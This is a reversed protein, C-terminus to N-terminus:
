EYVKVINSYDSFYKEILTFVKSKELGGYGCGLAPFSVSPTGLHILADKALPLNTELYEYQSSNKWHIKTPFMLIKYQSDPLSFIMPAILTLKKNNIYSTVSYDNFANCEIPYKEMFAAALGAGMIGVSNTPNTIVDTNSKFIDGKVYQIM